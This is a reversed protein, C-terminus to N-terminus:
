GSFFCEFIGPCSTFVSGSMADSDCLAKLELHTSFIDVFLAFHTFRLTVHNRIVAPFVGPANKVGTLAQSIFTFSHMVSKAKVHLITEYCLEDIM